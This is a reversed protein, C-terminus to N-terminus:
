ESQSRQFFWRYVYVYVPLFDSEDKEIKMVFIYLEM